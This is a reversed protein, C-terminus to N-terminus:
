AQGNNIQVLEARVIGDLFAVRDQIAADGIFQGSGSIDQVKPDVKYVEKAAYGRVQSAVMNTGAPMLTTMYIDFGYFRGIWGESLVRDGKDTDLVIGSDRNTIMARIAPTIVLKRGSQPAKVNDLAEGLDAINQFITTPTPKAGAPAVLETGGAVMGAFVKTDESEGRTEVAANFRQMVHDEPATDVTFGDLIENMAKEELNNITVYSSGDNSVSVGVGPVYTQDLVGENVYVKMSTADANMLVDHRVIEKWISKEALVAESINSYGELKRAGTAM